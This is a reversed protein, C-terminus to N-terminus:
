PQTESRKTGVWESQARCGVKYLPLWSFSSICFSKKEKESAQIPQGLLNGLQLMKFVLFLRGSLIKSSHMGM